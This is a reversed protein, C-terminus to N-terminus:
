VCLERHILERLESKHRINELVGSVSSKSMHLKKAIEDQTYGDMVCHVILKEKRFHLSNLIDAVIMETESIDIYEGDTIVDELELGTDDGIMQSLSEAYMDLTRKQRNLETAYTRMKTNIILSCFTKFSSKNNDWNPFNNYIHHRAESAFDDYDTKLYRFIKHFTLNWLIDITQRINEDQEVLFEWQEVTM